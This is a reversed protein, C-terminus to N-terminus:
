FCHSPVSGCIVGLVLVIVQQVWVIVDTRDEKESVAFVKMSFYNISIILCPVFLFRSLHESLFNILHVLIFLYFRLMGILIVIIECLTLKPLLLIQIV